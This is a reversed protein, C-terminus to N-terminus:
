FILNYLHLYITISIIHLKKISELYLACLFKVYNDFTNFGNCLCVCIGQASFNRHLNLTYSRMIM